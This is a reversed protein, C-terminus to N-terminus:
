RKPMLNKFADPFCSMWWKAYWIDEDDEEMEYGKNTSPPLPPPTTNDLGMPKLNDPGGTPPSKTPTDISPSPSDDFQNDQYSSSSSSSFTKNNKAKPTGDINDRNHQIHHEQEHRQKKKKKKVNAPEAPAFLIDTDGTKIPEEKM